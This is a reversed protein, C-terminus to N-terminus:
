SSVLEASQGIENKVQWLSKNGASNRGKDTIAGAKNLMGKSQLSVKATNYDIESIGTVSHAEHFRYNSIGAYSSKLSQTAILVIEENKTIECTLPLLYQKINDERCYITIGLDKGCSITHQVIVMNYPLESIQLTNADFPTGNQPVAAMKDNGINVISYYDRSGSSWYSDLRMPTFVKIQYKNGNYNPFASKAISKIESTNIYM